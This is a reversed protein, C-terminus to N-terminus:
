EQAKEEVKHAMSRNNGKGVKAVKMPAETSVTEVKVAGSEICPVCSELEEVKPHGAVAGSYKVFNPYTAVLNIALDVSMKVITGNTLAPAGPIQTLRMVGKPAMGYIEVKTMAYTKKEM